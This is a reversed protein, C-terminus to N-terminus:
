NKCWIYCIAANKREERIIKLHRIITIRSTTKKDIQKDTLRCIDGQTIFKSGKFYEEQSKYLNWLDLEAPTVAERRKKVLTYKLTFCKIIVNDLFALIDELNERGRMYGPIMKFAETSITKEFDTFQLALPRMRKTAYPSKVYEALSLRDGSKFYLLRCRTPTPTNSIEALVPSFNVKDEVSQGIQPLQHATDSAKALANLMITSLQQSSHLLKTCKQHNETRFKELLHTCSSLFGKIQQAENLTERLNSIIDNKKGYIVCFYELKSIQQLRNKFLIELDM